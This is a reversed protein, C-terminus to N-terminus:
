NVLDDKVLRTRHRILLLLRHCVRACCCQDDEDYTTCCQRDSDDGEEFDVFEEVFGVTEQDEVGARGGIVGGRRGTVLSHPVRAVSTCSHRRITTAVVVVRAGEVQKTTRTTAHM